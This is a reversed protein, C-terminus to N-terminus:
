QIRKFFRRCVISQNQLKLVLQDGEVTYHYIDGKDSPDELRFHEETLEDGMMDFKIKHQTGDLGKGEFSEGLAWNEYIPSEKSTINQMNYRGEQKSKEFVKTVSQFQIM